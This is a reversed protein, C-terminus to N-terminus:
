LSDLFCIVAPNNTPINNFVERRLHSNKKYEELVDRTNGEGTVTAWAKLSHFNEVYSSIYNEHYNAFCEKPIEVKKLKKSHVNYFGVNSWFLIVQNCFIVIVDRDPLPPNDLQNRPLVFKITEKVWVSKVADKLIHLVVKGSYPDYEETGMRSYSFCGKYEMPSFVGKNYNLVFEDDRPLEIIQFKEGQLDFSVLAFRRYNEKGAAPSLRRYIKKEEEPKETEYFLTGNCSIPPIRRRVNSPFSSMPRHKPWPNSIKRWPKSSGLTFIYYEYEYYKMICMVKYENRFPNYGIRFCCIHEGVRSILRSVIILKEIRSPNCIELSFYVWEGNYSERHVGYNWYCALGNSYGIMYELGNYSINKQYTFLNTNPTNGNEEKQVYYFRKQKFCDQFTFLLIPKKQSEVMQFKNFQQHHNNILFFWLKSVCSFRILSKVPLKHLIHLVIDQPIDNSVFEVKDSM